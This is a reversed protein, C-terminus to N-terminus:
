DDSAVAPEREFGGRRLRERLEPSGTAAVRLLLELRASAGPELPRGGEAAAAEAAAAARLARTQERLEAEAERLAAAGGGALARRQGLVLAEGAALLRGVEAAHDLALRNLIWALGVPRRLRKVAAAGAADGRAALQRALGDREATFRPPPLALVRAAEM